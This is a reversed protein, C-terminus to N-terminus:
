FAKHVKEIWETKNLAFPLEAKIDASSAGVLAKYDGADTIWAQELTNFSAVDAKAFTLTVTESEGPQLEATKAFAKLEKLPKDAYKSEPASVYLQVVEKGAYDGTNKVSVTVTYEGNSESLKAGSYEFTTYSQGYGFPYSVPVEYKDFYRYGVYIGEAYVTFTLM